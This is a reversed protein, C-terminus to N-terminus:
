WSLWYLSFCDSFKLWENWNVPWNLWLMLSYFWFLDSKSGSWSNSSHGSRLALNCSNWFSCICLLLGFKLLSNILFKIFSV